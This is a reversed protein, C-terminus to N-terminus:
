KKGERFAWSSAEQMQETGNLKQTWFRKKNQEQNEKFLFSVFHGWRSRESKTWLPM